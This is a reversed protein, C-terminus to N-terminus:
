WVVLQDAGPALETTRRPYLVENMAENIVSYLLWNQDDLLGSWLIWAVESGM